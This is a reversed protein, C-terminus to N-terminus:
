GDSGDGLGESVMRAVPSGPDRAMLAYALVVESLVVLAGVSVILPVEIALEGALGLTDWVLLLVGHAVAELLLGAGVIGIVLPARPWTYAVSRRVARVPGNREINVVPGVIGLLSAVVLGPIAGVLAGLSVVLAVVLDAVVLMGFPLSRMATGLSPAEEGRVTAGVLEDMVGGLLVLGLLALLESASPLLVFLFGPSHHAESSLSSELQHIGQGVLVLPLLVALSAGAVRAPHLRYLRVAGAVISGVRLSAIHPHREADASHAM